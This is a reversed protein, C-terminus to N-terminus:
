RVKYAHDPRSEPLDDDRSSGTLAECVTALSVRWDPQEIGFIQRIRSCDLVSNAPRRAATPFDKSALPVVPMGRDAVIARAFDYWSTPPAGSFHYTGWSCFRPEQCASTVRLVAEAIDAAATPGGVQDDVVRLQPQTRALRLMTKVFNHGHASFVWSTRLIIHCALHKRVKEEGAFKSCGYVSLPRAPDDEKAPQASAGDFVYDTSIHLLPIAAEACALAVNEAGVANIRYANDADSEAQDVATYAACNVVMRSGALAGKVAAPDTIDCETKGLARHPIRRQRALATLERGVQGNAGLISLPMVSM